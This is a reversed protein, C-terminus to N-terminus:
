REPALMDEIRSWMGDVAAKKAAAVKSLRKRWAANSTPNIVDDLRAGTTAWPEDPAALLDLAGYEEFLARYKHSWSTGIVPTGSSLSGVIAHFRSSVSFRCAAIIGKTTRADEDLVPLPVDARQNIAAIIERDNAEHLVLWPELDASRVHAIVRGLFELYRAAVAPSTKDVMRANPVIAVRRSWVDADPRAPPALGHTIDPVRIIRAPDLPLSRAHELSEADRACVLDFNKMLASAAERVEPREFPGLAQPLMVLLAGRRKLEAYYSARHLPRRTTWQDGYAFGSCDFLASIHRGSVAGRPAALRAPLVRLAAANRATRIATVVKGRAAAARVDALLQAGQRVQALRSDVLGFEPSAALIGRPGLREIVAELMLADGKNQVWPGLIEFVPTSEVLRSGAPPANEAAPVRGSVRARAQRDLAPPASM